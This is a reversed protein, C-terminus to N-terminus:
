RISEVHESDRWGHHWERAYKDTRYPNASIPSGLCHAYIGEEYAQALLETEPDGWNPEERDRVDWEPPYEYESMKGNM